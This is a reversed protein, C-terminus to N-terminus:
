GNLRERVARNVAQPDAKGGLKRMVQGVLFVIAKEKGTRYDEVSKPYAALAEEAARGILTTDGIQELGHVRVYADIDGDSDFVADLVAAATNRNLTGIAVLKILRALTRSSLPLEVMELGRSSLARLVEGLIWNACQKPPAGLAVAGEFLDALARQSTLMEADYEGLGYERGYRARRAGPLEPQATALASIYAESLEVAPLDPEPLYRYDAADEKSRAPNSTGADEDWHRTEQLVTGGAELLAIQRASEHEIAQAIARLSGLNKLETRTGLAASGTPRVSINVDCRLSGEQMKCDSVGLYQLIARLAELYAVVEGPGRFDPHTVIEILPVGCRNYDCQAEGEADRKLKGADEELHMEHIRVMGGPLTVMGDRGIPTRLQTIQYGKPLDPYFYHKRDFGFWQTITCGLALAAKVAYEVAQANLTPLAGPLGACVGCCQTNPAAGFATTCGCFLKTSTSLEVHTELGIITEWTM